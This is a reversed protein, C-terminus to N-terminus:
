RGAVEMVAATAAYTQATLAVRLLSPEGPAEGSTGNAQGKGGPVPSHRGHRLWGKEGGPGSCLM